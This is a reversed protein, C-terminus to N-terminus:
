REIEEVIVTETGATANADITKQIRVIGLVGLILQGSIILFFGFYGLMNPKPIKVAIFLSIVGFLTFAIGLVSYYQMTDM